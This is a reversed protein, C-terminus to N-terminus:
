DSPGLAVLPEQFEQYNDNVDRLEQKNNQDLLVQTKCDRACLNHFLWKVGKVQSIRYSLWEMGKHVINNCKYMSCHLVIALIFYIIGVTILVKAIELGIFSKNYSLAAHIALLNLVTFCEQINHFKSKFPQVTAHFYLLGGLLVTIILYTDESLSLLVYVIVKVLLLLGTWYYAKDKYPAFYPDLIPKFATVVRLCSLTRTFLLILIFPLLM